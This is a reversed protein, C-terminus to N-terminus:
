VAIRVRPRRDEGRMIRRLQQRYRRVERRTDRLVGDYYHLAAYQLADHVHSYENKEPRGYGAVAVSTEKYRYGGEFGERLWTCRPSLKFGNRKLLWKEVAQIRPRIDNTPAPQVPLGYRELNAFVTENWYASRASGAPDGIVLVPYGAYRNRLLPLLHDDRFEEFSMNFGVVEDLVYLAGHPAMATVVAAPNLGWDCGVVLMVRGPPELEEEAVHEASSFMPYVLQGAVDPAYEGLVMSRLQAENLSAAMDLYYQYGGNLNEINEAAPNPELTGDARRILAGPQRFLKWGRPREVEFRQYFWSAISPPNADMWLGFWPMVGDPLTRSSPYRKLRSIVHPILEGDLEPAENIFAFTLELSRLKNAVEQVPGDFSMFLVEMEAITGDGLDLRATWTIPSGKRLKGMDGYWDMFTRITTSELVSYSARGVLTRSRRVGDRGPPTSFARYFIETICGVSKGSGVPGMVARVFSDDDHFKQLTPSARYRVHRTETM